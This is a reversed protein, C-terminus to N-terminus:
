PDEEKAEVVEEKERRGYEEQESDVQGPQNDTDIDKTRRTRKRKDKKIKRKRRKEREKYRKRKSWREDESTFGQGEKTIFQVIGGLSKMNTLTAHM